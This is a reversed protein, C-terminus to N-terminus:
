RALYRVLLDTVEMVFTDDGLREPSRLAVGHILAEAVDLSVAAALPLDPRRMEHRHAELYSAVIQEILTRESEPLGASVANHLQPDEAHLAVLTRVFEGVAERLPLRGARGLAAVLRERFAADFRRRVEAVLAEKNPFYQYLSGVSVGAKEAVSNTTLREM